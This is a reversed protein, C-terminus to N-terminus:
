HRRRRRRGFGGGGGGGVLQGARGGARGGAWQKNQEGVWTDIAQGDDGFDKTDV